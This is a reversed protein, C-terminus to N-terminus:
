FISSAHALGKRPYWGRQYGHLVLALAIVLDDNHGDPGAFEFKGSKYKYEYSKLQSILEENEEPIIIEHKEIALSLSNILSIKTPQTMYVEHLNPYAARYEKVHVDQKSTKGGTAGGTSDIVLAAGYRDALAAAYKAGINHHEKLPRLESHIVQMRSPDFAVLASPDVVRGLDLGIICGSGTSINSGSICLQIDRPDFVAAQNAIPICDYEQDYIIRPLQEKVELLEKRGEASSFVLGSSTPFRWSKYNKKGEQGPVYFKEYYWNEGRFQGSIGLTGRRDSILPRAIAWFLKEPIDQIEDFWVEDLGASRLNGPRDFSRFGVMSGNSWWIQPYPQMKNRVIFKNLVPHVILADYCMWCQSYSPTVYWYKFNKNHLCRSIIRNYCVGITKGWRRGTFLGIYRAKCNIIEAQEPTVQLKLM